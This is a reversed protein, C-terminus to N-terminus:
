LQRGNLGPLGVDTILFDISQATRLIDLAANGDAAELFSYNLETLVDTIVLRVAPEGDVVLVTQRLQAHRREAIAAVSGVLPDVARPLYLTITKGKGLNSSIAALGHSQKAFGYFM